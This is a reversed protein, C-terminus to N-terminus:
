KHFIINEYLICFNKKSDLRDDKIYISSPDDRTPTCSIGSTFRLSHGPHDYHAYCFSNHENNQNYKNQPEGGPDVRYIWRLSVAVVIAIDYLLLM